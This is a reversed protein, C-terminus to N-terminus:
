IATPITQTIPDLNADLKTQAITKSTEPNSAPVVPPDSTMM